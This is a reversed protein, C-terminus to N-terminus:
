ARVVRVTWACPSDVQLSYTGGHPWRVSHEGSAGDVQALVNVPQGERLVLLTFEPDAGAASCDYTYTADWAADAEFAETADLGVGKAELLTQPGQSGAVASPEGSSDSTCGAALLSLALGVAAASCTRPALKV